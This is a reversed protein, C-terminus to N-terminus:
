ETLSTTSRLNMGARMRSQDAELLNDLLVQETLISPLIQDMYM